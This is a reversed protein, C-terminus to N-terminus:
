LVAYSIRMLSQLESTHEESRNCDRVVSAQRRRREVVVKWVYTRHDVRQALFHRHIGIVDDRGDLPRAIFAIGLRDRAIEYIGIVIIPRPVACYQADPVHLRIASRDGKTM